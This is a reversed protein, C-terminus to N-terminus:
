FFTVEQVREAQAGRGEHNAFEEFTSYRRSSQATWAIVDFADETGADLRSGLEDVSTHVHSIIQSVRDQFQLAVLADAIQNRIKGHEGQLHSVSEALHTALLGFRELVGRVASEAGAITSKGGVDGGVSLSMTSLRRSMRVSEEESERALQRIE